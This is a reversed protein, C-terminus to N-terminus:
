RKRALPHHDEVVTKLRGGLVHTYIQTTSVDAHGLMQQVSRLDAGHNLLHTAFAHRLVHPSVKTPDLGSDRALEKVLQGVRRRTLHGEASSSPFLYSPPEAKTPLHRWRVELYAAVAEVAARTLPVLREKNGKGRVLVARTDRTIANLPLEVLESVRLGSAYAIELLCVLRKGDAGRRARAAALLTEVEAETLTKPLPRGRQPSDVAASPDDTRLGESYLFGYFQRMASLRRAVTRPSMGRAKLAGMYARLDESEASALVTDRGLLFEEVDHLDVKYAAATNVAANREAFLMEMFPELQRCTAAMKKKALRGM